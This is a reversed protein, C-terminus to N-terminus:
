QDSHLEAPVGFRSFFQSVLVNAVTVAEQNLPAYAEPWKSFYDRAILIYKYARETEPLLGLVDIVVREKPEGVNHLQLPSRTKVWPGKRAAWLDCKHCWEEVVPSDHLLKLVGARLATPLVVQWAEKGPEPSEWRYYLVGGKLALSDWQAWYAKLTSDLHSIASWEFRNSANM